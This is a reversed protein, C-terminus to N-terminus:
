VWRVVKEIKDNPLPKLGGTHQLVSAKSCIAWKSSKSISRWGILILVADTLWNSSSLKYSAWVLVQVWSFAVFDSQSARFTLFWSSWAHRSSLLIWNIKFDAWSSWSFTWPCLSDCCNVCSNMALRKRIATRMDPLVASSSFPAALAEDFETWSCGSCSSGDWVSRSFESSLSFSKFTHLFLLHSAHESFLFNIRWVSSNM